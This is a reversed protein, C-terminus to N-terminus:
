KVLANDPDLALAKQYYAFAEAFANQAIAVLAADMLTAISEKKGSRLDAASNFARQARVVDGLQLYVRGLM